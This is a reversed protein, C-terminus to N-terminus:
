NCVPKFNLSGNIITLGYYHRKSNYRQFTMELNIFYELYDPFSPSNNEQNVKDKFNIANYHTGVDLNTELDFLTSPHREEPNDRKWEMSWVATPYMIQMLGYSSAIAIEANVSNQHNYLWQLRGTTQSAELGQTGKGSYYSDDHAFYSYNLWNNRKNCPGIHRGQYHSNYYNYPYSDDRWGDGSKVVQWITVADNLGLNACGTFPWTTLVEDYGSYIKLMEDTRPAKDQDNLDPSGFRYAEFLGWMFSDWSGHLLDIDYSMPEYRFSTPNFTHKSEHDAQSKIYQPPIGYHNAVLNIENDFEPHLNGLAQAYAVTFSLELDGPRDDDKSAVKIKLSGTHVTQFRITHRELMSDDNFIIAPTNPYLSAPLAGEVSTQTIEWTVKDLPMDDNGSGQEHWYAKIEPAQGFLIFADLHDKDLTIIEDATDEPDRDLKLILEGQSCTAIDGVGNGCTDAESRFSENPCCSFCDYYGGPLEQPIIRRVVPYYNAGYVCDKRTLAYLDGYGDVDINDIRCVDSPFSFLQTNEPMLFISPAHCSKNWSAAYATGRCDVAQEWTGDCSPNDGFPSPIVQMEGKPSLHLYPYTCTSGSCTALLCYIEGSGSVKLTGGIAAMGGPMLSNASYPNLDIMGGRNFRWICTKNDSQDYLNGFYNGLVYLRGENDYALESPSWGYICPNGTCKTVCIQSYGPAYICDKSATGFTYGLSHTSPDVNISTASTSRFLPLWDWTGDGKIQVMVQIVSGSIYSTLEVYVNDDHSTHVLANGFNGRGYRANFFSIVPRLDYEQWLVLIEPENSELEYNEGEVSCATKIKISGSKAGDPVNLSIKTTSEPNVLIPPLDEFIVFTQPFDGAPIFNKGTISLLDNVMLRDQSIRSIEPSAPMQVSQALAIAPLMLLILLISKIVQIASM